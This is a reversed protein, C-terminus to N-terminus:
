RGHPQGIGPPPCLHSIQFTDPEQLPVPPLSRLHQMVAEINFEIEEKGPLGQFANTFCDKINTILFDNLLKDTM